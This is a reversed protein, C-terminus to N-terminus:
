LGHVSNQLLVPSCQGCSEDTITLAGLAQVEECARATLDDVSMGGKVADGATPQLWFSSRQPSVLASGFDVTGPILSSSGYTSVSEQEEGIDNQSPCSWYILAKALPGKLSTAPPAVSVIVRSRSTPTWTQKTV